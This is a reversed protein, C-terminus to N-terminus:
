RVWSRGSWDDDDDPEDTAPSSSVPRTPRPAPAPPPVPPSPSDEELGLSLYRDVSHRAPQEVPPVPPVAMPPAPPPVSPPMNDFEGGGFNLVPPGPAEKRWTQSTTPGADDAAAQRAAEEAAIAEASAKLHEDQEVITNQIAKDYEASREACDALLRLGGSTIEEIRRATASPDLDLYM